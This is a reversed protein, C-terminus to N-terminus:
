FCSLARLLGNKAYELILQDETILLMGEVRATAVIIRDCPDGHFGGPLQSSEVAIEPSIPLVTLSYERILRNIWNLTPEKLKLRQKAALMSIEWITMCSVALHNERYAKEIKNKAPGKSLKSHGEAMWIVACTDLLIYNLLQSPNNQSM